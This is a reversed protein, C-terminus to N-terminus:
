GNVGRGFRARMYPRLFGLLSKPYGSSTSEATQSEYTVSHRSISESAIGVKEGTGMDWKIMKVVGMRIDAPWEGGNEQLVRTFNNATYGKLATEIADLRGILLEDPEDTDVYRRLEEPTMIM